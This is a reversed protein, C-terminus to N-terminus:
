FKWSCTLQWPVQGETRYSGAPLMFAGTMWWNDTLRWHLGPLVQAPRSPASAIGNLHCSGLAGVYFYVNRLSELGTTALSRQFAMGYRVSRPVHSAADASNVWMHRGVFAQIATDNDLAHFLAFSPSFITPGGQLGLYQTGAPTCAQLDLCCATRSTDLLQVQTVVRNYGIGGPDGPRRFDFYPNDAGLAFQLWNPGNDDEAATTLARPQAGPPTDDQDFLGVPDTVFAPSFRLLAIRQVSSQPPAGPREAFWTDPDRENWAQALSQADSPRVTLLHLVLALACRAITVSSLHPQPMSTSLERYRPAPWFRSTSIGLTPPPRM